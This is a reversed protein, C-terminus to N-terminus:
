NQERIQRVLDGDTLQEWSSWLMSSKTVVFYNRWEKWYFKLFRELKENDKTPVHKKTESLMDLFENIHNQYHEQIFDNKLKEIFSQVTSSDIEPSRRWDSRLATQEDVWYTKYIVISKTVIQKKEVKPENSMRSIQSKMESMNALINDLVSKPISVTEDEKSEEIVQIAEAASATDQIENEKTVPM